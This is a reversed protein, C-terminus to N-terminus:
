QLLTGCGVCKAGDPIVVFVRASCRPCGKEVRLIEGMHGHDNRRREEVEPPKKGRVAYVSLPTEGHILRWHEVTIPVEFGFPPPKLPDFDKPWAVRVKKAPAPKPAPPLDVEIEQQKPEDM